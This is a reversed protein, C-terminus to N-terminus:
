YTNALFLLNITYYNIASDINNIFYHLFAMIGLGIILITVRVVRYITKYFYMIASVRDKDEEVLPKYLSYTIATGVGLEAFSLLSIINSFLGNLSLYDNGLQRIFVTRVIFSSVIYLIQFIFAISVNQISKSIKSESM